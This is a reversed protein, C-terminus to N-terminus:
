VHPSDAVRMGYARALDPETVRLRTMRARYSRYEVIFAILNIAYIVIIATLAVQASIVPGTGLLFYRRLLDTGFIAWPVLLLVGWLEDALGTGPFLLALLHYLFTRPANRSQRPRPILLWIVSLAAWAMFLVVAAVWLWQPGFAPYSTLTTWPDTFAAGLAARYSGAYADELRGVGPAALQPASPRYADLLRSPNPTLGLNFSAEPHDPRLELAVRFLEADSRLVGLNNMADADDTLEQYASAAAAVDGSTHAAYASVFSASANGPLATLKERAVPTALSGSGLQADLGASRQSWGHLGVLALVAAFLLVVVLKEILAAHRVVNLRALPSRNRGRDANQRLLLSQPRWYKAALTLNLALIAVLLAAVALWGSRGLSAAGDRLTGALSFGHGEGARQRWTNAESDRGLRRLESAYERLVTENAPVASGSLRYLWPAWFDAAQMDGRALASRMADLPFGYAASTAEDFLLIGRYGREVFDELAADMAQAALDPRRDAGNMLHRALQAREYFTEAQAIAGNLLTSARAPETRAAAVYLWPNTPDVLLRAVPDDVQAEARLWGYLPLGPDFALGGAPGTEAVILTDRAGNSYEVTVALPGSQEGPTLTTAAGTTQQGAGAAPEIAVIQAPLRHRRLVSGSDLDVALLHNGRGLYAREGQVLPGASAGSGGPFDLRWLQQGASRAVFAGNELTVEVGTASTPPPATSDAPPLAPSAAPPTPETGTAPPADDQTQDPTEGEQVAQGQEPEAQESEVPESEIQGPQTQAPEAQGPETQEPETQGPETQAPETQGPETQGPETQGAQEEAPAQVGPETEEPGTTASTGDDDPTQAADPEEAPPATSEPAQAPQQSPQRSIGESVQVNLTADLDPGSVTLAWRGAHTLPLDVSLRGSADAEHEGTVTDAGVAAEPPTLTIVYESGPRLGTARVTLTDGVRYNFSDLSLSPSGQAASAALAMMAILALLALGSLTLTAQASRVRSATGPRRAPVREHAMASRERSAAKLKQLM